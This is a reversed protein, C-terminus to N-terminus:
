STSLETSRACAAGIARQLVGGLDENALVKFAAETTGGKSMVAKILEEPSRDAHEMLHYSGLMTQKVLANAVHPALGLEMGADIMSQVIKFFYAPGSGSLATVADLHSEDELHVARGTSNLLQEVMVTQLMSLEAGTAYATIGMGIQAPANPMARVVTRHKLVEQLRPITIGAMISLLVQDDRLVAALDKAVTQLDQPKVALIVLDCAGVTAGVSTSIRGLGELQARRDESRIVLELEDAGLLGYKRFSRAYAHGMNGCGVIAIKM